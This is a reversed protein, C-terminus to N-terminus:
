SALLAGGLGLVVLLGFGALLLTRVREIFQRQEEVDRAVLLRQGGALMVPIGVAVRERAEDGEPAAYRFLGGTEDRLEPPWRNLNGALKRGQANALFYLSTQTARSREAIAEVAATGGSQRSLDRL